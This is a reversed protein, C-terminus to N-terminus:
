SVGMINGAATKKHCHKCFRRGYVRAVAHSDETCAVSRPTLQKFRQRVIRGHHQELHSAAQMWINVSLGCSRCTLVNQIEVDQVKPDFTTDPNRKEAAFAIEALDKLIIEKQRDDLSWNLDFRKRLIFTNDTEPAQLKWPVEEHSHLSAGRAKVRRGSEREDSASRMEGIKCPDYGGSFEGPLRGRQDNHQRCIDSWRQEEAKIAAKSAKRARCARQRAADDAHKKPRGVKGIIEQPVQPVPVVDLQVSM